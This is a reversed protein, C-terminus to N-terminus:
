SDGSQNVGISLESLLEAGQTQKLDETLTRNETEMEECLKKLNQLELRLATNENNLDNVKRALEECEQQKRMRSRRASERNSQKRKERRLEREDMITGSNAGNSRAYMPVSGSLSSSLLDMEINNQSGSLAARGPASVPLKKATRVRGSYSSQANAGSYEDNSLSQFTGGKPVVTEHSRKRNSFHEKPQGDDGVTDSSGETETHDSQSADEGVSSTGIDNNERKGLSEGGSVDKSVPRQDKQESPRGETETTWYAMGANMQPPQAYFGGHPYFSAYPIPSGFPPPMVQQPGWVVPQAAAVPSPSYFAQAMVAPVGHGYLSQMPHVATLPTPPLEPPGKSPAEPSLKATAAKEKHSGMRNRGLHLCRRLVRSSSTSLGLILHCASVSRSPWPRSRLALTKKGARIPGYGVRRLAAM